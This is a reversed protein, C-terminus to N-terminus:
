PANAERRTSAIQTAGEATEKLASLVAPTDIRFQRKILGQPIFFGGNVYSAYYVNTARGGDTPELKWFGHMEKFDGAVRHWELCRFQEKEKMELKYEFTAPQGSPHVEQYLVKTTGKDAVVQCKRLRKFVKTQQTYDTLVKWVAEPKAQVRIKGTQYCKDAIQEEGLSPSSANDALVPASALSVIATLSIFAAVAANTIRNVRSRGKLSVDTKLLFSALCYLVSNGDVTLLQSNLQYTWLRIYILSSSNPDSSWSNLKNWHVCLCLQFELRM